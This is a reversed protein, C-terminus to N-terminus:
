LVHITISIKLNGGSQSLSGQGNTCRQYTLHQRRQKSWGNVIGLGFLYVLIGDGFLPM